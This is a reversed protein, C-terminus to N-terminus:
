ALLKSRVITDFVEDVTIDKMCAMYIKNICTITKRNYIRICPSCYINKYFVLNGKELPGYLVPTEPGFFSVTKKKMALALHLPGSDNTIILKAQKFLAILQKISTKGALNVANESNISNVVLNTYEIDEKGGIFVLKVNFEELLRKSLEAFNESPWRREVALDSANVNLCLMADKERIGNKNLVEKIHLEDERSFRPEALTNTINIGFANAVKGFNFVMHLNNDLELLKNYLNNRWIKYNTNYGFKQLLFSIAREIRTKGPKSIALYGIRLNHGIIYALISSFRTYPEFDVVLDFKERRLAFLKSYLDLVFRYIRKTNLSVVEDFIELSECLEKNESLTILTIEADPFKKRLASVTPSMLIISGMGWFKILLIKKLSDVNAAKNGFIREYSSLFFCILFGLYMDVTKMFAIKM